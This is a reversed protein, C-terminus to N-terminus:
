RRWFAFRVYDPSLRARKCADRRLLQRPIDSGLPWLHYVTFGSACYDTGPWLRQPELGNSNRRATALPQPKSLVKFREHLSFPDTIVVSDSRLAAHTDFPNRGVRSFLGKAKVPCCATIPLPLAPRERGYHSKGGLCVISFCILILKFTEPVLQTHKKESFTFTICSM